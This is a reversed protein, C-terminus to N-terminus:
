ELPDYTSSIRKLNIRGSRFRDIGHNFDQDQGFPAPIGAESMDGPAGRQILRELLLPDRALKNHLRVLTHDAKKASFFISNEIPPTISRCERGKQFIGFDHHDIGIKGLLTDIVHDRLLRFVGDVNVIGLAEVIRLPNHDISAEIRLLHVVRPSFSSVIQQSAFVNEKAPFKPVNRMFWGSLRDPADQNGEASIIRPFDRRLHQAHEDISKRIASLLDNDSFSKPSDFLDFSHFVAPRLQNIEWIRLPHLFRHEFGVHGDRGAPLRKILHSPDPQRPYRNRHRFILYIIYHPPLPGAKDIIGTPPLRAGKKFPSEGGHDLKPIFAFSLSSAMDPSPQDVATPTSPNAIKYQPKLPAHLIQCDFDARDIPQDEEASPRQHDRKRLLRDSSLDLRGEKSHRPM